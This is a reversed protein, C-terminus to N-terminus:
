LVPSQVHGVIANGSRLGAAKPLNTRSILSAAMVDREKGGDWERQTNKGSTESNRKRTEERVEREEREEREGREESRM